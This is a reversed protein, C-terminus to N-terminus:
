TYSKGDRKRTIRGTDPDKKDTAAFVRSEQKAKRQELRVQISHIRRHVCKAYSISLVSSVWLRVKSRHM